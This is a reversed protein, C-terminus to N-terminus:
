FFSDKLSDASRKFVFSFSAMWYNEFCIEWWSSYRWQGISQEAFERRKDSFGLWYMITIWNLKLSFLFSFISYDVWLLITDLVSNFFVSFFPSMLILIKFTWCYCSWFSKSKVGFKLIEQDFYNMIFRFSRAISLDNTNKSKMKVDLEQLVMWPIVIQIRENKLM